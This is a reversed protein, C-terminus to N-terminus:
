SEDQTVVTQTVRVPKSFKKEQETVYDLLKKNPIQKSRANTLLYGM